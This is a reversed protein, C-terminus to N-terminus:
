LRVLRGGRRRFRQLLVYPYGMCWLIVRDDGGRLRLIRVVVVVLLLLLRYVDVRLLLWRHKGEGMAGDISWWMVILLLLMVRTLRYSMTMRAARVVLRLFRNREDVWLRQWRLDLAGHEVVTRELLGRCLDIGTHRVRWILLPLLRARRLSVSRRGLLM